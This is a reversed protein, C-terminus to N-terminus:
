NSLSRRIKILRELMEQEKEYVRMMENWHLDSLYRRLNQIYLCCRKRNFFDFYNEHSWQFDSLIELGDEDQIRTVTYWEYLEILEKREAQVEIDENIYYIDPRQGEYFECFSLFSYHLIIDSIEWPGSYYIKSLKYLLRLKYYPKRWIYTISCWLSSVKYKFNWWRDDVM